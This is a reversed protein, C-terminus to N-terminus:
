AAGTDASISFSKGRRIIMDVLKQITVKVQGTTALTYPDVTVDYGLWEGYIVQSFDGFIVQNATPSSPFQNSWRARNVGIKDGDWIPLGTNTFKAITMAKAASAPTTLYAPDGLVANIDAVVKWFEVYKAWTAAGGFTVSAAREAAALNLIGIPEAGGAGNIGVRDLEVAIAQLMDDRVFSEADLSTQALFQKTYPVSAGIRRPKMAIQGFTPSSGAITGNEGVWYAISGTLVRPITVDGTLGTIVRAGLEVLRSQNRLLEVLNATDVTQAVTYGGDPASGAQLTRHARAAAFAEHPVFFGEAKRGIRTAEADSMERELGDLPKGSAILSIARMFSYRKVDKPNMGLEARMQTPAAPEAGLSNLAERNFQDESMGENCAREALANLTEANGLNRKLLLAAAARIAKARNREATNAAVRIEAENLVVPDPMTPAASSRTPVPVVEPSTPTAKARGVGVSTDAPVSVISVEYPEWSTIRYTELGEEESVLVMKKVRYGVSVLRRIGDVIDQFIEEGRASKSFRMVCRAKKTTADIRSSDIVAVQDNWDHNILGAGSNNLRALDCADSSIDLIERGYWREVPEESAFSLEVTRKEKDIGSREVTFALDRVMESVRKDGLIAAVRTASDLKELLLPM